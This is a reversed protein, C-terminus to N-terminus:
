QEIAVSQRKEKEGHRGFIHLLLLSRLLYAKSGATIKVAV